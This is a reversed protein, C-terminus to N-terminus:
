MTLSKREEVPDVVIGLSIPGKGYGRKLRLGLMKDHVKVVDQRSATFTRIQCVNSILDLVQDYAFKKVKSKCVKDRDDFKIRVKMKHLPNFLQNWTSSGKVKM